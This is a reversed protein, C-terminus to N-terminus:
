RATSSASHRRARAWWGPLDRRDTNRLAAPIILKHRQVATELERLCQECVVPGAPRMKYRTLTHGPGRATKRAPRAPLRAALGTGQHQSLWHEPRMRFAMNERGPDPNDTVYADGGATGLYRRALALREAASPGEESVVPGEVSVYRYPPHEDQACLSFRGAARIAQAKRSGRGTLV